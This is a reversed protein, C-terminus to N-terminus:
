NSRASNFRYNRVAQELQQETNIPGQPISVDYIDSLINEREPILQVKRFQFGCIGRTDCCGKRRILQVKRFQFATKPASMESGNHILQVKRFQFGFADQLQYLTYAPILQVKRFQFM